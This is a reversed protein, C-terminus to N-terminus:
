PKSIPNRRWIFPVSSNRCDGLLLTFLLYLLPLFAVKYRVLNGLVPTLIGIFTATTLIFFIVFWLVQDITNDKKVAMGIPIVVMLFLLFLNELAPVFMLVNKVEWIYPRLISNLIGEPLVALFNMFSGNLTTVHIYSNAGERKAEVRNGLQKFKLKELINWGNGLVNEDYSKSILKEKQYENIEINNYYAPKLLYANLAIIVMGTFIVLGYIMPISKIKFFECSLYLVSFGFFIAGVQPKSLLLFFWALPFFVRFIRKKQILLGFSVCLLSVMLMEKLAGSTWILLTPSFFVLSFFVRSQFMSRFPISRVFFIMCMFSLVSLILSSFFLSGQTLLVLISDVRIILQNDNLIGYSNVKQWYHLTELIRLSDESVVDFGVIVRLFDGVSVSCISALRQGDTFYKYIDSKTHDTYYDTYIWYLVMAAVMKFAFALLLYKKSVGHIDLYSTRFVFYVTLLVLALFVIM